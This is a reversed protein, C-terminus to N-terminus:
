KYLLGGEPSSEVSHFVHANRTLQDLAKFRVPIKSINRYSAVVAIVPKDEIMCLSMVGPHRIDLGIELRIMYNIARASLLEAQMCTSVFSVPELPELVLIGNVFVEGVFVGVGVFGGLSFNKHKM